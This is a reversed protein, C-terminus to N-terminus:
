HMNFICLFNSVSEPDVAEVDGSAYLCKFVERVINKAIKIWGPLWNANKFYQLKHQPHLVTYQLVINSLSLSNMLHPKGM